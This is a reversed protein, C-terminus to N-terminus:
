HANYRHKCNPCFLDRRMNGPTLPYLKKEKIYCASCYFATKGEAFESRRIYAGNKTLELDDDDKPAIPDTPVIAKVNQIFEDRKKEWLSRNREELSFKERLIDYLQNLKNRVENIDHDLKIAIEQNSVVGTMENFGFGPLLISQYDTKLAWAAGMENLCVPRQYYNKSHVFLVFLDFELFQQKLTEFIDNGISIDYGPYSTCFIQKETLGIYDLLDVLKEVYEKDDSAHSIFIKPSKEQEVSIGKESVYYKSINEAMICIKTKLTEFKTKDSWGNFKANAAELADIAFKDNTRDVIDQLEFKLEELWSKFAPVDGIADECDFSFGPGAERTIHHFHGEISDARAVLEIFKDKM